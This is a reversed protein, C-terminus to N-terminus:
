QALVGRVPYGFHRNNPVVSGSRAIFGFSWAYRVVSSDLSSFWLYGQDFATQMYGDIAAGDAPVFMYTQKDGKKYFKVGKIRLPETEWSIFLSMNSNGSSKNATGKIEEGENPVLYIDTNM